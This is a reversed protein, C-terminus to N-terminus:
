KAQPVVTRVSPPERLRRQEAWRKLADESIWQMGEGIDMLHARDMLILGLQAYRYKDVTRLGGNGPHRWRVIIDAEDKGPFVDVGELLPVVGKLNADATVLLKLEGEGHPAAFDVLVGDHGVRRYQLLHLDNMGKITIVIDETFKYVGEWTPYARSSLNAREVVRPVGQAWSETCFLSILILVCLTRTKKM